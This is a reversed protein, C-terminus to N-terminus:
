IKIFKYKHHLTVESYIKKGSPNTALYNFSFEGIFCDDNYDYINIKNSESKKLNPFLKHAIIMKYGSVNKEIIKKSVLYEIDNESLNSCSEKYSNGNYGDDEGKVPKVVKGIICKGVDKVMFYINNDEYLIGMLSSKYDKIMLYIKNCDLRLYSDIPVIFYDQLKCYGSHIGSTMKYLKDAVIIGEPSLYISLFVNKLIQNISWIGNIYDSRQSKTFKEFDIYM